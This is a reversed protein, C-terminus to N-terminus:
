KEAFIIINNDGAYEALAIKFGKQELLEDINILKPIDEEVKTKKLKFTHVHPTGGMWNGTDAWWRKCSYSPLNLALIGDKELAKYMEELVEELNPIHELTHSSFIYDISYEVESLKHYKIPRGYYDINELDVIDVHPAVPGQSGGFDVGKLKDNFIISIFTDRYTFIGKWRWVGLMTRFQFARIEYNQTKPEADYHFSIFDNYNMNSNILFHQLYEDSSLYNKNIREINPNLALM